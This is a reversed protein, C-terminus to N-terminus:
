VMSGSNLHMSYLIGLYFLHGQFEESYYLSLYAHEISGDCPLYGSHEGQVM